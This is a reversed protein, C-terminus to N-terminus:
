KECRGINVRAHAGSSLSVLLALAAAWRSSKIVSCAFYITM